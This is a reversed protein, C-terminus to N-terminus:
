VSIDGLNLCRALKRRIRQIANDVSKQSRGVYEAMEKYSLGDLYLSLIDAEFRSLFRSYNLIMEKVSERALVQEEPIRRFVEP